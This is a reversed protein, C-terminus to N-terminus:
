IAPGISLLRDELLPGIQEITAGLDFWSQQRATEPDDMGTFALCFTGLLLDRGGTPAKVSLAFQVALAAKLMQMKNPEDPLPRASTIFKPEGTFKLWELEAGAVQDTLTEEILDRVARGPDDGLWGLWHDPSTLASLEDRPSSHNSNARYEGTLKGADDVKWGGKIAEPPVYGNPDDVWDSDIEYVWGGPNAAAEAELGPSPKPRRKFLNV